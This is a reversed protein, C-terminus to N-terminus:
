MSSIMQMPVALLFAEVKFGVLKSLHIELFTYVRPINARILLCVKIGAFVRM